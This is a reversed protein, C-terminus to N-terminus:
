SPFLFLGAAQFSNFLYQNTCKESRRTVETVLETNTPNFLIHLFCSTFRRSDGKLSDNTHCSVIISPGPPMQVLFTDM